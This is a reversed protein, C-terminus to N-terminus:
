QKVYPEKELATYRETSTDGSATADDGMFIGKDNLKLLSYEIKGAVELDGDGNVDSGTVDREKGLEWDNIGFMSMQNFIDVMLQDTVLAKISVIILDVEATDEVISSDGAKRVIYNVTMKLFPNEAPMGKVDHYETSTYVFSDNSIELKEVEWSHDEICHQPAKIWSGQIDKYFDLDDCGINVFLLAVFIVGLVKKMTEEM